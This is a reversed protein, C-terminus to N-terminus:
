GRGHNRRLLIRRRVWWVVFVAWGLLYLFSVTMLVPILWWDPNGSAAYVTGRDGSDLAAVRDGPWSPNGGSLLVDRRKVGTATNTFDGTWSCSHRGCSENLAVFVGPAGEGRHARWAPGLDQPSWVLVMVCVAPLMVGFLFVWMRDLLSMQSEKRVRRRGNTLTGGALHAHM